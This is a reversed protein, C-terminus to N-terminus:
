LRQRVRSAAGTVDEPLHASAVAACVIATIAAIAATVVLCAVAISSFPGASAMADWGGEVSGWRRRFTVATGWLGISVAIVGTTAAAVMRTARRRPATLLQWALAIVLMYFTIAPFFYRGQIGVIRGSNWFVEWAHFTILGATLLPVGGILAVVLRSKSRILVFVLAALFVVGMLVIAWDPLRLNPRISGWFTRALQWVVLRAFGALSYGDFAEDERGSGSNSSQIEGFVLINRLWWWGGIAFASAMAVAAPTLRRMWSGDTRLGAVLLIILAAPIATLMTGKTLLGLGLFAGAGIADFVGSRWSPDRTTLARVLFYIMGSCALLTLSDNTVLSLVNFFQPVTLIALGGIISAATWSTVRRVAALAFAAGGLAFLVSVVRAGAALQDWRWDAAGIVTLIGATLGYYTPPHQTMWDVGTAGDLATGTMQTVVSRDEAVPLVDLAPTGKFPNGAEQLAVFTGELVPATQPPPWGGGQMLRLVSNFHVPEDVTSLPPTVISWLTLLAGIAILVAAYGIPGSLRVARDGRAWTRDADDERSTTIM